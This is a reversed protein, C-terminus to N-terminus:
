FIEGCIGKGWSVGRGNEFVVLRAEVVKSEDATRAAAFSKRETDGDAAVRGLYGGIMSGDFDSDVARSFRTGFIGGAVVLM